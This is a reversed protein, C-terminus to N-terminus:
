MSFNYSFLFRRKILIRKILGNTKKARIIKYRTVAKLRSVVALLLAPHDGDVVAVDVLVDLKELEDLVLSVLVEEVIFCPTGASSTPFQFVASKSPTIRVILSSPM